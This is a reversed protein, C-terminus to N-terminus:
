ARRFRRRAMGLAGLLGTGTLVIESPEPTPSSLSFALDNNLVAGTGGTLQYATGNGGSGSAWYWNPSNESIVSLWYGTGGTAIFSGINASYQFIEFGSLQSGTDTSTVGTTDTFLLTGPVGGNNSYFDVAFSTPQAGTSVGDWSVSSITGTSGLTFNDFAQYTPSSTADSATGSSTTFPQNYLTAGFAPAAAALFTALALGSLASRIM